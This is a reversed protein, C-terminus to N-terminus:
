LSMAEEYNNGQHTGIDLDAVKSDVQLNKLYNAFDTFETFSQKVANVSPVVVENYHNQINNFKEKMADALTNDGISIAAHYAQSIVELASKDLLSCLTDSLQQGVEPNLNMAM